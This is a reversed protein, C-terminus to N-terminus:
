GRVRHKARSDMITEKHKEKQQKIEMFKGACKTPNETGYPL